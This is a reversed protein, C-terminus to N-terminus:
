NITFYINCSLFASMGGPVSFFSRVFEECKHPSSVSHFPCSHITLEAGCKQPRCVCQFRSVCCHITSTSGGCNQLRGVTHSPCCCCHITFGVCNQLLPVTQSPCCCFHITTGAYNQSFLGVSRMFEIQPGPVIRSWCFICHTALYIFQVLM